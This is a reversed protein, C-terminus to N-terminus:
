HSSQVEAVEFPELLKELDGVRVAQPEATLNALLVTGGAALAAVRTPASSICSKREQGALRALAAVALFIPRPGHDGVIGSPGTLAGFTLVDLPVAETAAAYGITWAAAFLGDQRPDFAAMPIRDGRPNPVTQAGYPNQRMGITVPGLRYPIAGLISQASRLVHPISELSQMVSLDDAAHVIPCTAHTVFDLWELPPRKRNLETFYGYMGGGLTLGPFARRATAYVDALPPCSPWESGPPTSRLDPAPFVSIASLALGSRAVYEAVARLETDPDEAPIVCELTLRHALGEVAHALAQMEALGHGAQAEFSLLLDQVGAALLAKRGERDADAQAPTLILGVRAMTGITDGVVITTVPSDVGRAGSSGTVTVRVAQRDTSGAPIVYPWPKALPRVYTKFSADSWNRQDEMEFSDGELRCAVTMGDKRHTLTRIDTFPQSPDILVPFCAAEMAGDGHEVDLPAGALDAPHLVCFGLRNTTVEGIAQADVVFDLDGASVTVCTHYTLQEAAPVVCDATFKICLRGAEDEVHFDRITPSITGWNRDRVLYQIGRLVEVGDVCITRLNGDFVEFSYRGASFRQASAPPVETGYLARLFPLTEPSSSYTSMSVRYPDGIGPM